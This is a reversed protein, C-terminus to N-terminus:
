CPLMESKMKAQLQVARWDVGKRIWHASCNARLWFLIKIKPEKALSVVAALGHITGHIWYIGMGMGMSM